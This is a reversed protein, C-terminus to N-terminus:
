VAPFRQKIADSRYSGRSQIQIPLNHGAECHNGGSDAQPVFLLLGDLLGQPISRRNKGLPETEAMIM